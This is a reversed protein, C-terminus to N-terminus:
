HNSLAEISSDYQTDLVLMVLSGNIYMLMNQGELFNTMMYSQYYITPVICSLTLQELKM